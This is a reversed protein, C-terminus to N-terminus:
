MFTWGPPWMSVEVLGNRASSSKFPSFIRVGVAVM